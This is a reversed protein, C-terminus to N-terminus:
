ISRTTKTVKQEILRFGTVTIDRDWERRGPRQNFSRAREKMVEVIEPPPEEDLFIAVSLYAPYGKKPPNEGPEVKFEKGSGNNYWGPTEWLSTPRYCGRDDPCNTVNMEFWKRTDLPLEKEAINAFERGVECEGVAGTIWATLEREFNGAYQETDVIFM